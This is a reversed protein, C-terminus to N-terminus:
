IGHAARRLTTAARDLAQAWDTTAGDDAGDSIYKIAIFPIEMRACVSALAYGEMEAIDFPANEPWATVFHDGSGCVAAPLDALVPGTVPLVVPVDDFPTQYPAFGLATVDMDRQIFGRCQVVTGAPYHPSGATGCNVVVSPKESATLLYHMLAAAANVKGVGTYLTQVDDFHHASESELAFVFLPLPM